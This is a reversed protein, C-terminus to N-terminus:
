HAGAATMNHALNVTPVASDHNLMRAYIAPHDLIQQAAKLDVARDKRDAPCAARLAVWGDDSLEDRPTLLDTRPSKQVLANVNANDGLGATCVTPVVGHHHLIYGQPTVLRAWTVTLEGDNSTRLVTQVTGKGFSATGIVIARGDDQLSSSVIESASASGGNVLIALPLKEAHHDNPAAFYQFSEPNRGITTVITGSEIFQSVVEISQDLLGGPNDRLDLVIGRLAAGMERHARALATVIGPGTSQNFSTIKIVAIDGAPKFTVTPPVLHMRKIAMVMPKELGARQIRLEVESSDPGRLRQRLENSSLSASLVGDLAVIRDDIRLGALAAPSDAMVSTIRVSGDDNDLIVGIGGYGDRAARWERALAPRAYHSFPDLTALTTDIVGEDLRDVPETAVASSAERATALLSATLKGWEVSDFPQPAEFRWSDEGRHLVVFNGERTASLAPDVAPLHALGALTLTGAETAELHYQILSEYVEGFLRAEAADGPMSSTMATQSGVCATLALSAFATAKLLGGRLLVGVSDGDSRLSWIM